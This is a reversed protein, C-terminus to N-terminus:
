TWWAGCARPCRVSGCTSTISACSPGPASGCARSPSGWVIQLALLGVLLYIVGRAAFGAKAAGKTVSGRAAREAQARGNRTLASTNM